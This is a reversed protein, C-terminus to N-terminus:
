AAEMAKASDRKDIQKGTIRANEHAVEIALMHLTKEFEAVRGPIQSAIASAYLKCAKALMLLKELDNRKGPSIPRPAIMSHPLLVKSFEAALPGTVIKSKGHSNRRIDRM